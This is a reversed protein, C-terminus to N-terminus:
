VPQRTPAGGPIKVVRGLAKARRALQRSLAAFRSERDPEPDPMGATVGWHQAWRARRRKNAIAAGYMERTIIWEVDVAIPNM